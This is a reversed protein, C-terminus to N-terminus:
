NDITKELGELKRKIFIQKIFRFYVKRRSLWAIRCGNYENEVMKKVLYNTVDEVSDGLINYVKLYKKRTEVDKPISNLMFDTLVIGPSLLGIKVKSNEAEKSVSSTYYTIARKTMGYLSKKETTAGDSGFGEVNYIFGGQKKMKESAIRTGNIVGKINVDVVQHMKVPDHEWAYEWNQDIGANNIWIDVKGLREEAYEYMNAVEEYDSVDCSFDFIKRNPFVAKLNSLALESNEKNRGNIVVNHRLKLFAEALGYGIGKTSGTIVINM